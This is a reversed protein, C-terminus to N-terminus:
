LELDQKFARTAPAPTHDVTGVNPDVMELPRGASANVRATTAEINALRESAPTSEPAPEPAPEIELAPKGIPTAQYREVTDRMTEAVDVVGRFWAVLDLGTQDFSAWADLDRKNLGDRVIARAARVLSSWRKRDDTEQRREKKPKTKEFDPGSPAADTAFYAAEPPAEHDGDLFVRCVVTGDPGTERDVRGITVPSPPLFGVMAANPIMAVNQGAFLDSLNLATM